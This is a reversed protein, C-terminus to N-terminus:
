IKNSFAFLETCIAEGSTTKKIWDCYFSIRTFLALIDGAEPHFGGGVVVGVAFWRSKLEGNQYVKEKVM